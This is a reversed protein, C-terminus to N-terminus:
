TKKNKSRRKLICIVVSLIGIGGVVILAHPIYDKFQWGGYDKEYSTEPDAYVIDRYRATYTVGGEEPSGEKKWGDFPRMEEGVPDNVTPEEDFFTLEKELLVTGDEDLYRLVYTRKAFEAKINVPANPMIFTLGDLAVADGDVTTVTLSKLFYGYDPHVEITVPDGTAAFQPDVSISGGEMADDTSASETSEGNEGASPEKGDASETAAENDYSSSEGDNDYNADTGKETDPEGLQGHDAGSGIENTAEDGKDPIPLSEAGGGWSPSTDSIPGSEAGGQGETEQDSDPLPAATPVEEPDTATDETPQETASGNQGGGIGISFENVLSVTTNARLNLTAIGDKLTFFLAEKTGDPKLEYVRFVADDRLYSSVDFAVEFSADSVTGSQKFDVRLTRKVGSETLSLSLADADLLAQVTEHTVLVSGAPFRFRLDVKSEAACEFASGNSFTSTANPIELVHNETVTVSIPQHNGDYGYSMQRYVATYVVDGTVPALQPTWRAFSEVYRDTMQKEPLMGGFDPTSGYPLVTQFLLAGKAVFSVKYEREIKRYVAVYEANDTVHSVFSSWGDFIYHYREDSKKETATPIEPMEGYVYTSTYKKEGVFFSVTYTIPNKRYIAYLSVDSTFVTGDEVKHGSQDFFGVFEYSAYVDAPKSPLAGGYFAGNGEEVRSMYLLTKRDDDYYSVTVREPLSAVVDVTCSVSLAPKGQLSRKVLSGDKVAQYLREELDNRQLSVPPTPQVVEDPMTPEDVTDPKVPATKVPPAEGPHLVTSPKTPKSVPTPAVPAQMPIPLASLSPTAHDTDVILRDDVILDCVRDGDAIVVGSNLTAHDDLCASLIFLQALFEKYREYRDHKKLTMQVVENDFLHDLSSYLACFHDRIEVYHAAYYAYQDEPTHFSRYEDLLDQLKQSSLDATDIAQPLGDWDGAYKLITEKESVVLKVTEGKLTVYMSDCDKTGYYASNITALKAVEYARQATVEQYQQNQKRYEELAANYDNYAKEQKKYEELAKEYTRYASLLADYAEKKQLYGQYEAFASEYARMARLYEDYRDKEAYYSSLADKYALFASEAAKYEAFDRDYKTQAELLAKGSQYAGNLLEELVKDNLTFQATYVVSCVTDAQAETCNKSLTYRQGGVHDFKLTEGCFRMSVPLFSVSGGNQATYTYATAQVSLTGNRYSAQVNATVSDSVYFRAGSMYTLYDLVTKPPEEGFALRYLTPADYVTATLDNPKEYHEELANAEDASGSFALFSLTCLCILAFIGGCLKKIVM